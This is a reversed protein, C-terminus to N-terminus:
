SPAAREERHGRHVPKAPPWPQSSLPNPPLPLLWCAPAQKRVPRVRATGPSAGACPALDDLAFNWDSGQATVETKRILSLFPCRSAAECGWETLM